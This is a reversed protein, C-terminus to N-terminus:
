LCDTTAYLLQLCDAFSKLRSVIVVYVMFVATKKIFLPCSM